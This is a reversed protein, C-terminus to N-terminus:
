IVNTLSTIALMVSIMIGGLVVSVLLITVPELLILFQRMQQQSHMRHMQALSATTKGLAGSREGVRVLNVGTADIFQHLQLSEALTKGGRVDSLILAAKQRWADGRLANQAHALAELISVHNQLLVSFMSSWRAMETHMIWSGIVPLGAAWNWLNQQVKEQRLLAFASGAVGALLAGLLLKNKTLWMGTALVWLSITPIDAKPNSLINAFKPVVFVFVLLTALFGSVILVMPYILANRAERQFNQELELQEAASRLSGALKGTSEGARCLEVVYNPLRLDADILAKSFAIGGRLQSYIKNFALGLPSDQYGRAVNEVADALTVGADLLTALEQLVVLIADRGARKPQSIRSSRSAAVEQMEFVMLGRRQLQTMAETQDEVTLVGKVVAGQADTAQYRFEPM